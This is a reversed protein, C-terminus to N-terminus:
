PANGAVSEALSESTLGHHGWDDGGTFENTIWTDEDVLVPDCGIEVEFGAPSRMYFSLMRDNKHRGLSATIALGAATARDFAAGVQDVDTVELAIHHTGSVPGVASLAISHHRPTCRLFHIAMNPGFNMFDSTRMGLVSTYFELSAPLDQVMLVAHGLGGETVFGPEGLPSRFAGDVTPGWFVELRTGAPDEFWAMNQVGREALERETAAKPAAGATELASVADDFRARDGVEFGIFGIGPTACERTAIRWSRNDAKFYSADGDGAPRTVQELGVVATAFEDWEQRSPVNLGIYGIGRLNM